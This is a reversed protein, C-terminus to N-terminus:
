EGGRKSREAERARALEQDIASSVVGINHELSGPRVSAKQGDYKGEMLKTFSSQQLVFDFDARWNSKNEGTLFPSDAIKHCAMRWGELGGCEGLRAKLHKKRPETLRQIKPLQAAIAMTNWVDVAADLEAKNSVTGKDPETDTESDTEQLTVLSNDPGNSTVNRSVNSEQKKNRQRYRKVRENADDSKFQRGNWNHPFCTEDKNELLGCDRLALMRRACERESLRLAFAVDALKPIVGECRSALCLLNVWTKFLAEPLRQVKPDELTEAYYRFWLTV